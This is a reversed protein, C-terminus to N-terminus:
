RFIAAFKATHAMSLLDDDSVIIHDEVRVGVGKFLETLQSTMLIDEQSPAAVFGPHNHCIIVSAARSCLVFSMLERNDVSVRSTTGELMRHNVLKGTGDFCLLAFHESKLGSFLSLILGKVSDGDELNVKGIEMKERYIRDNLRQLMTLFVATNEGVGEVSMLEEPKASFVGNLSGFVSILRHALENTDKRPICYFLLLELVNHEPLRDIGEAFYRERMRKRHEEHM